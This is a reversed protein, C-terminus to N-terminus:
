ELEALAQTVQEPKPAVGHWGVQDEMFSVGKGKITKAIIMTPRGKTNKAEALASLIQGMDHGDISLVHWGFAKWKDILPKTSMVEEVPGDIQLGNDDLFATLNDLRYHAAAMAAEWVMGEQCEGDGLLAYVRYDKQDLKGALAMGNAVALGQGLSGTSMEVGPLANLDPHGQLRSGMKRLTLLEEKPFYGREALAAYLVPAAHGKSLVFRDRDAWDPEQPNINMEHFYLATVIDAASLSGGPHGSGAAGTMRVISKRIERAKAELQQKLEENM